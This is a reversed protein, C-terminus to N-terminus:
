CTGIDWLCTRLVHRGAVSEKQWPIDYRPPGEQEGTHTFYDKTWVRGRGDRSSVGLRVERRQGKGIRRSGLESWKGVKKSDYEAMGLIHQMDQTCAWSRALGFSLLTYTM